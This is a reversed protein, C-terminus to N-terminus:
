GTPFLKPWVIALGRVVAIIVLGLAAGVLVLGAGLRVTRLMRVRPGRAELVTRFGIDDDDPPLIDAGLAPRDAPDPVTIEDADSRAAARVALLTGSVVIASVILVENM